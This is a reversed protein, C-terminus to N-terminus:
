RLLYDNIDKYYSPQTSVTSCSPHRSSSPDDQKVPNMTKPSPLIPSMLVMIVMLVKERYRYIDCYRKVHSMM